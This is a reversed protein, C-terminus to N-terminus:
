TVEHPHVFRAYPSVRAFPQVNMFLAFPRERSRQHTKETFFRRDYYVTFRVFFRRGPDGRLQRTSHAVTKTRARGALGM